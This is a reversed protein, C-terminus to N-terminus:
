ARTGHNLILLSSVRLAVLGSLLKRESLIDNAYFIEDFLFVIRRQM